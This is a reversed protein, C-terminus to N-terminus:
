RPFATTYGFGASTGGEIDVITEIDRAEWAQLYRDQVAKLDDLADAAGVSPLFVVCLTVVAATRSVRQVAGASLVAIEAVAATVAHMRVGLTRVAIARWLTIRAQAYPM